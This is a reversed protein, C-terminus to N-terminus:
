PLGPVEERLLKYVQHHSPDKVVERDRPNVPGVQDPFQSRPPQPYPSGPDKRLLQFALNFHSLVLGLVLWGLWCM